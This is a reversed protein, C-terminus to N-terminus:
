CISFVCVKSRSSRTDTKSKGSTQKAESSSIEPLRLSSAVLDNTSGLTSNEFPEESFYESNVVSDTRENRESSKETAKENDLEDLRQKQEHGDKSDGLYESDSFGDNKTKKTFLIDSKRKESADKFLKDNTAETVWIGSDHDDASTVQVNKGGVDVSKRTTTTM